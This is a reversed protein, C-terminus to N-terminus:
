AFKPHSHLHQARTIHASQSEASKKRNRLALAFSGRM